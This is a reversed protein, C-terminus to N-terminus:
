FWADPQSFCLPGRRNKNPDNIAWWNKRMQTKIPLVADQAVQCLYGYASELGEYDPNTDPVYQATAYGGHPDDCKVNAIALLKGDRVAYDMKIPLGDIDFEIVNVRNPSDHIASRVLADYNNYTLKIRM